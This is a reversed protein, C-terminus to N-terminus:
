TAAWNSRTRPYGIREAGHQRPSNGSCASRGGRSRRRRCATSPPGSRTPQTSRWRLGLAPPPPASEMRHSDVDKKPLSGIGRAGRPWAPSPAVPVRIGIRCGHLPRNGAGARQREADANRRNEAVTRALRRGQSSRRDPTQAPLVTAKLGAERDAGNSAARRYGVCPGGPDRAV